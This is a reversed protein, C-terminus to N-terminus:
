VPPPEASRRGWCAMVNSLPLSDRRANTNPILAAAPPNASRVAEGEASAAGAVFSVGVVVSLFACFYPARRNRVDKDLKKM